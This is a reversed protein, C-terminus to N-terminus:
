CYVKMCHFLLYKKAYHPSHSPPALLHRTGASVVLDLSLQASLASCVETQDETEEESEEAIEIFAQLLQTSGGHDAATIVPPFVLAQQDFTAGATMHSVGIIAFLAYVLFRFFQQFRM